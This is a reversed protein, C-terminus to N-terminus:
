NFYPYDNKIEWNDMMILYTCYLGSGGKCGYMDNNLLVDRPPTKGGYGSNGCYKYPYVKKYSTLFYNSSTSEGIFFLFTDKGVKNRKSIGNLYVYTHIHNNGNNWFKLATGNNLTVSVQDGTEVKVDTTKLYPRLYKNYWELTKQSNNNGSFDWEEIEGNDIKSLKVAQCLQSYAHKLRSVTERKQYSKILTPITLAAVVGVIGLTILVEALTFGSRTYIQKIQPNCGTEKLFYKRLLFKLNKMSDRIIEVIHFDYCIKYNQVLKHAPKICILSLMIKKCRITISAIVM